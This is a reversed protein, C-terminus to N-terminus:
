QPVRLDVETGHGPSSTVAATGGVERLRGIISQSVGLRGTATADALRDAAFGQGDDRISVRIASGEDEVLVWGRAGAGAHKRVNDVAAVTAGGIARAAGAPLLVAIAPCAVTIRGDALPEILGRVDIQGTDADPETSTGSVLSRLATEQEAALLGPEAPEGGIERGRSSGLALVQLVSDHIGRAIREREAIGAERRAAGDVAAEAKLGLRVVYGGVGGAILVLVINNFTAQPLFAQREALDAASVAAGGALGAWPGGAVACSLVAAVAWTSPITPAGNTIRVGTDIWRTSLVLVVSVAVDAVVLWPLRGAPRAFAVVTLITWGAMVALAVFGGGPHAYQDHNRFILFSAYALTIIRFVAVVRWM